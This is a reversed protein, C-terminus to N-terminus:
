RVRFGEFFSLVTILSPPGLNAFSYGAGTNQYVELNVAHSAAVDVMALLEWFAMTFFNTQVSVFACELQAAATTDYFRIAFVNGAGVAPGILRAHFCYRGQAPTTYTGTAVNYCGDTDYDLTDLLGSGPAGTITRWGGTAVLQSSAAASHVRFEGTCGAGTAAISISGAGPTISIGTGATLAAVTPLNGTNGIILQGNTMAGLEIIAGGSSVMVQKNTLAASSNTGGYLIPLKNLLATLVGALDIGAWKLPPPAGPNVHLVEKVNGLAFCSNRPAVAGGTNVILDGVASTIALRANPADVEFDPGVPGLTGPAGDPGQLGGPVVKQGSPIGTGPPANSAYRGFLQPNFLSVHTSDIVGTNMMWGAVGVYLMQLSAMWNTSGVNAVVSGGGAPMTFGVLLTTWCNEGDECPECPTGPDGKPGPVQM